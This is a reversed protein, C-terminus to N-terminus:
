DLGQRMSWGRGTFFAIQIQINCPMCFMGPSIRWCINPYRSKRVSTDAEETHLRVYSHHWSRTSITWCRTPALFLSAAHRGKWGMM